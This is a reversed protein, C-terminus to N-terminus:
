KSSFFISFVLKIIIALGIVLGILGPINKTDKEEVLLKISKIPYMVGHIIGDKIEIFNNENQEKTIETTIDKESYNLSIVLGIFAVVVLVILIIVILVLKKEMIGEM